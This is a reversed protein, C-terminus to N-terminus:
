KPLFELIEDNSDEQDDTVTIAAQIATVVEEYQAMMRLHDKEVAKPDKEDACRELNAAIESLAIAGIMRSTSKIAHVVTAYDDWDHEHYYQELTQVKEKASHAYEKLVSQYLSEDKQCHSLGIAPDIGATRLPEYGDCGDMAPAEGKRKAPQDVGPAPIVKEPPLYKM